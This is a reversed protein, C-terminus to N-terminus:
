GEFMEQLGDTRKTESDETVKWRKWEQEPFLVLFPALCDHTITRTERGM